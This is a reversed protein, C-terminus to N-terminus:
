KRDPECSPGLNSTPAAAPGPAQLFNRRVRRLRALGVSLLVLNGLAVGYLTWTYGQWLVAAITALITVPASLV